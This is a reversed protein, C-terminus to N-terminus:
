VFRGHWRCRQVISYVIEYVLVNELRGLVGHQAFIAPELAFVYHIISISM